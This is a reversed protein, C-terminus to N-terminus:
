SCEKILAFFLLYYFVVPSEFLDLIQISQNNNLIMRSIFLFVRIEDHFKLVLYYILDYTLKRFLRRLHQVQSEVSEHRVQKTRSYM